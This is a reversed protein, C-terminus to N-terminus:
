FESYRINESHIIQGWNNRDSEYEYVVVNFGKDVWIEQILEEVLEWKGGALKSGFKPCHFVVRNKPIDLEDTPINLNSIMSGVISLVSQMAKLLAWYRIPKPNKVGILGDQAIMNAVIVRDQPELGCLCEGLMNKLGNPSTRKLHFYPKVGNPWRKAISVAVGAGMIGLNNCCHPIIVIEDKTFCQPYCVDGRYHLLRAKSM